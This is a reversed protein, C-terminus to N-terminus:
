KIDKTQEVAKEDREKKIALLRNLEDHLAQVFSNFAEITLYRSDMTRLFIEQEQKVQEQAQIMKKIQLKKDM